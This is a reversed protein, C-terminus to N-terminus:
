IVQKRDRQGCWGKKLFYSFTDSHMSYYYMVQNVKILNIDIPFSVNCSLKFKFNPVQDLMPPYM